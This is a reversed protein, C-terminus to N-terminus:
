DNYYRKLLHEYLTAGIYVSTFITYEPTTNIFQLKFESHPLREEERVTCTVADKTDLFRFKVSSPTIDSIILGKYPSKEPLLITGPTLVDYTEDTLKM